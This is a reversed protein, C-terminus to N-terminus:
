KIKTITGTADVAEIGAVVANADCSITYNGLNDKPPYVKLITGTQSRVIFVVANKCGSLQVSSGSVNVTGNSYRVRSAFLDVTNDQIYQLPCAPLPYGKAKVAGIADDINQQTVVVNYTAYDNIAATFPVFFGWARFFDTLDTNAIECCRKYFELHLQNSDVKSQNRLIECLDKYFDTQGLVNSFYLQLQWFPVLKCFVDDDLYHNHGDAKFFRDFAKQYRTLGQGLNESQLRSASLGGFYTQMYQSCVNNSVETMGPWKFDPRVQNVHGIEHAPGWIGSTKLKASANLANLTGVQYATYYNTAYMYASPDPIAKVYLHNKSLRKYKVIGMFEQEKYVIEDWTNIYDVIDANTLNTLASAKFSVVVYDGKLDIYSAATNSVMKSWSEPATKNKDFSGNVIGRAFFVKLKSDATSQYVLYVLGSASPRFKNLGPNLPYDVYSLGNQTHDIVRAILPAVPTGGVFVYADAGSSVYIGTVNDVFGYRNTKNANAAIAPDPFSQCEVIRRMDIKKDYVALGINRLVTDGVVQVSQRTVGSKVETCSGDTFMNLFSEKYPNSSWCEIEALSVFKNKESESGGNTKTVVVKVKLPKVFTQNLFVSGVAGESFDFSAAKIFNSNDSTSVWVEGALIIGNLGGDSRPVLYIYNLKEANQNLTFVLEQPLKVGSWVCHYLTSKSGDYANSIPTGPQAHPATASTVAIKTDESYNVVPTDTNSDPESNVDANKSCSSDLFVLFIFLVVLKRFTLFENIFASCCNNAKRWDPKLM